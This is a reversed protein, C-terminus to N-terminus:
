AMPCIGPNRVNECYDANDKAARAFTEELEELSMTKLRDQDISYLAVEESLMGVPCIM